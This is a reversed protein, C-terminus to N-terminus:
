KTKTKGLSGKARINGKYLKFGGGEGGGLEEENRRSREKRQPPSLEAWAESLVPKTKCMKSDNWLKNGNKQQTQWRNAGDRRIDLVQDVPKQASYRKRAYGKSIHGKGFRRRKIHGKGFGQNVCMSQNLSLGHNSCFWHKQMWVM